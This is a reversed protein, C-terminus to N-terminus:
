GDYRSIRRLNSSIFVVKILIVESVVRWIGNSFIRFNLRANSAPQSVAKVIRLILNTMVEPHLDVRALLKV